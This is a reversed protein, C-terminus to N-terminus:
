IKGILTPLFTTIVPVYTILLLVSFMIIYFPIMTKTLKGVKIGSIASGIYLVGGVPPTLLGMGLNLILVVGFHVLNIDLSLLVPVLIPVLILIISSMSMVMGLLLLVFNLLLLIVYKNSSIALLGHAIMKPIGLFTVVWGFQYSVAILVMIISLTKITRTAVEYYGKLDVGKYVFVSVFLAWLVAIAASETATMIGGSVGFVIIVITMLGWFADLFTKLATKLEFSEGLPIKKWKSYFYSYIMLAIGLVIGPILGGIFLAGISVSGATVAYVVMNHSPPILMGQVSSAMTLCTSFDKQYGQETMMQIEIPGLSATDASASGSIGGFFMSAVVNVMAAGGHMWGVLAKALDILRKSIGGQSMLEGALIFFPVAMFTFVNTGSVMGQYVLALPLRMYSLTILTALGMAFGIGVRLIMLSAFSVVLISIAVVENIM